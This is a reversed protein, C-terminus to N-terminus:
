PKKDPQNDPKNQDAGDTRQKPDYRMGHEDAQWGPALANETGARAGHKLRDAPV